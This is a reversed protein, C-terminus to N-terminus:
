GAEQCESITSLALLYPVGWATGVQEVWASRLLCNSQSIARPFDPDTKVSNQVVRLLDSIFQYLTPRGPITKTALTGLM